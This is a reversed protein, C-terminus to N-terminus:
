VNIVTTSGRALSTGRRKSYAISYLGSNDKASYNTCTSVGEGLVPSPTKAIGAPSGRCVEFCFEVM